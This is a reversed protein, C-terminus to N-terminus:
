NGGVCMNWIMEFDRNHASRSNGTWDKTATM